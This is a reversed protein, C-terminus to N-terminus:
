LRAKNRRHESVVANVAIRYLWSYFASAGTYQGLNTYARLYAEQAADQADTMSGCIRRLASCLRDQYKHVLSGYAAADGRRAAAILGTEDAEDAVPASTTVPLPLRNALGGPLQAYQSLM